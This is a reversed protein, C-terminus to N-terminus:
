NGEIWSIIKDSMPKDSPKLYNVLNGNEDILFKQFNWQIPADVIGNYDKDTLWQYIEHISAPESKSTDPPYSLYNYQSVSIKEMIPFTVGYNKECFEAIESPTGQEQHLFNDAPFAIITFKEGGYKLFLEQLQKYQPTLGCKSAVNVVLVKKGKLSSMKFEEGEITKVSFDHFNKQATLILSTLGIFIFFLFLSKM